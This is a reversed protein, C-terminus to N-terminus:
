VINRSLFGGYEDELGQPVDWHFLTISPEISNNRLEDILNQYYTIGEEIM